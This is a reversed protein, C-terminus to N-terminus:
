LQKLGLFFETRVNNLLDEMTIDNIASVNAVESLKVSGDVHLNKINSLQDIKELKSIYEHM